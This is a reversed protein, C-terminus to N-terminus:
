NQFTKSLDNANTKFENKKDINQDSNKDLKQTNQNNELSEKKNEQINNKNEQIKEENLKNSERVWLSNILKLILEPKNLKWYWILRKVFNQLSNTDLKSLKDVVSDIQKESIWFRELIPWVQTEIDWARNAEKAKDISKKVQSVEAKVQEESKEVKALSAQEINKWNEISM